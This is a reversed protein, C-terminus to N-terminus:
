LWLKNKRGLNLCVKQLITSFNCVWMWVCVCMLFSSLLLFGGWPPSFWRMITQRLYFERMWVVISFICNTHWPGAIHCLVLVCVYIFLIFQRNVWLLSIDVASRGSFKISPLTRHCRATSSTLTDRSDSPSTMAGVEPTSWLVWWRYTSSTRSNVRSRSITFGMHKWWRDPSKM